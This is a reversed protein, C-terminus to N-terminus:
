RQATEENEYKEPHALKDQELAIQKALHDAEERRQKRIRANRIFPAVLATLFLALLFHGAINYEGKPYGDIFALVLCFIFITIVPHKKIFKWIAKIPKLAKEM